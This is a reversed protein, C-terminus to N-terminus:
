NGEVVSFEIKESTGSESFVEFTVSNTAGKTQDYVGTKSSQNAEKIISSIELNTTGSAISLDKSYAGSGNANYDKNIFIRIKSIPKDNTITLTISEPDSKKTGVVNTALAKVFGDSSTKQLAGDDFLYLASMAIIIQNGKKIYAMITEKSTTTKLLPKFESQSGIEISYAISTRSAGIKSGSPMVSTVSYSELGKFDDTKEFYSSAQSTVENNIQIKRSAFIENFEGVFGSNYTLGEFIVSVGNNISEIIMDRDKQNQSDALGDITYKTHSKNVYLLDTNKNIQISDRTYHTVIVTKTFYLNFSSLITLMNGVLEEEDLVPSDENYLDCLIYVTGGMSLEGTDTGNIHWTKPINSGEVKIVETEPVIPVEDVYGELLFTIKESTEFNDFVEFTITNTTGNTNEYRDTLGSEDAEQILPAVDILHTGAEEIYRTEYAGIGNANYATNIFIRVKELPSSSTVKLNLAQMNEKSLQWKDPINVKQIEIENKIYDVEIKLDASFGIEVDLAKITTEYKINERLFGKYTYCDEDYIYRVFVRDGEIIDDLLYFIGKAADADSVRMIKEKNNRIVLVQTSESENGDSLSINTNAVKITRKDLISPEEKTILIKNGQYIEQKGYEPVAYEAEIEINQEESTVMGDLMPYMKYIPPTNDVGAVGQLREYYPLKIRKSFRGNKIRVFWSKNITNPSEVRPKSMQIRRKGLTKVAYLPIAKLYQQHTWGVMDIEVGNSIEGDENVVQDLRLRNVGLWQPFQDVPLHMNGDKLVRWRLNVKTNANHTEVQTISTRGFDYQGREIRLMIESRPVFEPIDFTEYLNDLDLDYAQKLGDTKKVKFGDIVIPKGIYDIRPTVAEVKIHKQNNLIVKVDQGVTVAPKSWSFNEIVSPIDTQIKKPYYDIDFTGDARFSVTGKGQITLGQEETRWMIRTTKIFDKNPELWIYHFKDADIMIKGINGGSSPYYKRIRYKLDPYHSERYSDIYRDMFVSVAYNSLRQKDPSTITTIREPSCIIKNEIPMINLDWWYTYWQSLTMIGYSGKQYSDDTAKCCLEGKGGIGETTNEDIYVSFNDGNTEITIKYDVNQDWGRRGVDSNFVDGVQDTIDEFSCGTKDGSFRSGGKSPTVKYIRKHNRGMGLEAKYREMSPTTMSNDTEITPNYVVQAAGQIDLRYRYGFGYNVAVKNSIEKELVDDVSLSYNTNYEDDGTYEDNDEDDDPYEFEGLDDYTVGDIDGGDDVVEEEADSDLEDDGNELLIEEEEEDEEQDSEDPEDISSTDKTPEEGPVEGAQMGLYSREEREWAFLYFEKSGQVRFMVGIVDDDKHEMRVKTSFEYDVQNMPNINTKVESEIQSYPNMAAVRSIDVSQDYHESTQYIGIMDHSTYNQLQLCVRGNSQNYEYVIDDRASTGDLRKGIGAWKNYKHMDLVKPKEYKNFAVDACIHWKLIASPKKEIIGTGDIKFEFPWRVKQREPIISFSSEILTEQLATTSSEAIPWKRIQMNKLKAKAYKEDSLGVILEDNNPRNIEYYNTDSKTGVVEFTASDPISPVGYPLSSNIIDRASMVSNGNLIGVTKDTATYDGYEEPILSDPNMFTDNILGSSKLMLAGTDLDKYKANIVYGFEKTPRSDYETKSPVRIKYGKGNEHEQISYVNKPNDHVEELMLGLEDVQEFVGNANLIRIKGTEMFADVRDVIEVLGTTPNVTEVQTVRLNTADTYLEIKKSVSIVNENLVVKEVHNYQIKYTLSSDTKKNMYVFVTYINPNDKHAKVKISYKEDSSLENNFEDTVLIQKGVYDEIEYEGDDNAKAMKNDYHYNIETCFYLATNSQITNEFFKNTIAVDESPFVNNPDKSEINMRDIYNVYELEGQENAIAITELQESPVINDTIYSTDILSISEDVTLPATHAYAINVGGLPIEKGIKLRNSENTKERKYSNLEDM